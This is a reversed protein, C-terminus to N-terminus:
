HDLTAGVYMHLLFAVLKRANMACHHDSRESHHDAMVVGLWRPYFM